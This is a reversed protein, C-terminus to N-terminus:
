PEPPVPPPPESPPPPASLVPPPPLPRRRGRRVLHWILLPVWIVAGPLAVNILILYLMRLVAVLRYLARLTINKASYPGLKEVPPLGKEYLTIEITSLAVQNQLYRQRGQIREIEEQVALIQQQRQDIEEVSKAQKLLAELQQKRLQKIGLRAQLDVWEETVNQTSINVSETKGLGKLGSVVAMFHESPVRLTMKIETNGGEDVTKRLGAVWGAYKEALERVQDATADASEVKITFDATYIIMQQARVKYPDLQTEMPPAASAPSPAQATRLAERDAAREELAMGAAAPASPPPPAAMGAPPPPQKAMKACSLGVTLLGGLAAVLLVGTVAVAPESRGAAHRM